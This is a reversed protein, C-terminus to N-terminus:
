AAALISRKINKQDMMIMLHFSFDPCEHRPRVITLSDQSHNLPRQEGRVTLRAIYDISRIRALFM